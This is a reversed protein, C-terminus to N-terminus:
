GKRGVSPGRAAVLALLAAVEEAETEDAPLVQEPWLSALGGGYSTEQDAATADTQLLLAGGTQLLLAAGSQLKLFAAM